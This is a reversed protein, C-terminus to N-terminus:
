TVTLAGSKRLVQIDVLDRQTRAKFYGRVFVRDGTKLVDVEDKQAENTAVCTIPREDVTMTFQHSGSNVLFVEGEFERITASAEAFTERILKTHRSEIVVPQNIEGARHGNIEVSDFFGHQSPIIRSIVGLAELHDPAVDRITRENNDISKAIVLASHLFRNRANEISQQVTDFDILELVTFEPNIIPKEIAIMLSAHVMQRTPIELVRRLKNETWGKVVQRAASSFIGVLSAYVDDVATKIVSFPILGEAVDGGSYKISLYPLTVDRHGYFLPIGERPLISDPMSQADITWSRLIEFNDESAEVLWQWAQVIANRIPITGNRIQDIIIDNTPSVIYKAHEGLNSIKYCLLMHANFLTTFIIPEGDLEYLVAAPVIERFAPRTDPRKSPIWDPM